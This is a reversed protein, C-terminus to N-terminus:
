VTTINMAGGYGMTTNVFSPSASSTNVAHSFTVTPAAATGLARGASAATAAATASAPAAPTGAGAGLARPSAVGLLVATTDADLLQQLM